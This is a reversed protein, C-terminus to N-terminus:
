PRTREDADINANPDDSGSLAIATLYVSAVAFMAVLAGAGGIRGDIFLYAIGM